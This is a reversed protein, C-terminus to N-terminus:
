INSDNKAWRITNLFFIIENILASPNDWVYKIEKFPINLDRHLDAGFDKHYHDIILTPKKCLYSLYSLGSEQSVVLKANSMLEVDSDIDIYDYSKFLVRNLECCTEEAGCVGVSINNKFLEDIIFQWNKCDWNRHPDVERKRPTIVVDAKLGLNYKSKPVFTYKAFDHKNHWGTESPSIFEIDDSNYFLKIKEKLIEEHSFDEYIGVKINDQIDQWDLFFNNATPFLCEHGFKTCVIKNTHPDGHIRKVFCFIMWGFEGKFPLYCKYKM